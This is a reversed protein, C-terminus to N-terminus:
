TDSGYDDFAKAVLANTMLPIQPVGNFDCYSIEFTDDDEALTFQITATVESDQYICGGTFEVINEDEESKFHKWAPDSFFRNFAQGYTIEPYANPYGNKVFDVYKNNSSSGGISGIVFIAAIVIVIGIIIKKFGYKKNITEAPPAVSQANPTPIQQAPQQTLLPETGQGATQSANQASSSDMQTGCNRCFKEDENLKAGCNACYM